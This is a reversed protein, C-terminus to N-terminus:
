KIAQRWLADELEQKTPERYEWRGDERRRMPLGHPGRPKQGNEFGFRDALGDLIKRMRMEYRVLKLVM